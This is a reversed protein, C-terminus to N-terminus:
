RNMDGWHEDPLGWHEDNIVDGDMIDDDQNELEAERVAEQAALTEL